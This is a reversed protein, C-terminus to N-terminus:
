LPFITNVIISRRFWPVFEWTVKHNSIIIIKKTCNHCVTNYEQSSFFHRGIIDFCFNSLKLFELFGIVINKVGCNSIFIDDYRIRAYTKWLNTYDLNRAWHFTKETLECPLSPFIECLEVDTQSLIWCCDMGSSKDSDGSCSM